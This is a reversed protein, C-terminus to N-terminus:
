PYFAVWRQDLPLRLIVAVPVPKLDSVYGLSAPHTGLGLKRSLNSKKVKFVEGNEGKDSILRQVTLALWFV